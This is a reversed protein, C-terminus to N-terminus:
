DETVVGITPNLGEPYSPGLNGKTGVLQFTMLSTFCCVLSRTFWIIKRLSTSLEPVQGLISNRGILVSILIRGTQWLFLVLNVGDWQWWVQTRTVSSRNACSIWVTNQTSTLSTPRRALVISMRNHLFNLHKEHKTLHPFYYDPYMYQYLRKQKEDSWDELLSRPDVYSVIFNM